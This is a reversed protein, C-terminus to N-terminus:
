LRISNSIVLHPKDQWVGALLPSIAILGGGLFESLYFTSKKSRGFLRSKLYYTSCM